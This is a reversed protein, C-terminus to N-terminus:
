NGYVAFGCKTLKRARMRGNEEYLHLFFAFRGNYFPRKAKNSPHKSSSLLTSVRVLVSRHPEM